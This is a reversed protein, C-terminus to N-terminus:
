CYIYVCIYIYVYVYIYIIPNGGYEPTYSWPKRHSTGSPLGNFKPKEVLGYVM